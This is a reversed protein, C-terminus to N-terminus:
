SLFFLSFYVLIFISLSLFIENFRFILYLLPLLLCINNNKDGLSAFTVITIDRIANNSHSSLSHPTPFVKMETEKFLM